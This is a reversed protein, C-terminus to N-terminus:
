LASQVVVVVDSDLNSHRSGFYALALVMEISRRLLWRPFAVFRWAWRGYWWVYAPNGYRITKFSKTRALQIFSQASWATVHTLDGYQNVSGFPSAANPFRVLCYGGPKLVRAVEDLIASAQNMDLHELVDIAVCVDFDHSPLTKISSADVKFGDRQLQQFDCESREIGRVVFGKSKSLRLLEGQGFGIELLRSGVALKLSLLDKLASVSARSYSVGMWGKWSSYDEYLNNIVVHSSDQREEDYQNSKKKNM